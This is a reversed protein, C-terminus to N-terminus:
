EKPQARRMLREMLRDGWPAPLWSLLRLWRVTRRPFACFPAQERIADVIQKAAVDVEMINHMQASIASTMPTRVWGPCVTTTRIGLPKLEVRLSDMVANLGAKSACYGAMRPLGHYSAVSSLAVLHGRRREMMGPLVAAISNVVGILNVRIVAEVDEARFNLASTETGIGACAILIDVPGLKGQLEAVAKSLDERNSVDACAWALKKGTLEQDLATLPEPKLDLAAIAAGERALDLALQRGIGSGAGTILVVKNAFHQM